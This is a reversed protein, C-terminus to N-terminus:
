RQGQAPERDAAAIWGLRDLEAEIAGAVLRHGASSWHPDDEFVLPFEQSAQFAPLLNLLPFGLSERQEEFFRFMEGQYPEELAYLGSEWNKPCENKNWHQFRPPVVLLFNGGAGKVEAAVAAIEALTAAFYPRTKELPHRYIFYNNYEDQGDIELLLASPGLAETAMLFPHLFGKLLSFPVFFRQCLACRASSWSDGATPLLKSFGEKAFYAGQPGQRLQRRYQFDDGVDTADFVMVVTEPKWAALEKEYLQRELLPSYSVLGANLVAIETDGLKQRWRKELLRPFSSELPVYLGFTFSDGLFLV